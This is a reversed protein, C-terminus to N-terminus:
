RNSSDLIMWQVGGTTPTEDLMIAQIESEDLARNRIRVLDMRGANPSATGFYRGASLDSRSGLWANTRPNYRAGAVDTNEALLDGNLYIAAGENGSFTFAIHHWEGDLLGSPGNYLWHEGDQPTFRVRLDGAPDGLYVHLSNPLNVQNAWGVPGQSFLYQFSNGGPVSEFWLSLTFEEHNGSLDFDPLSIVSSTGNFDATPVSSNPRPDGSAVNYLTATRGDVEETGDGDLPWSAIVDLAPATPFPTFAPVSPMTMEFAEIVFAWDGTMPHRVSPDQEIHLFREPLIAPSVSQLCPDPSGNTFRGQKNTTGSLPYSAGPEQHSVAYRSDSAATLIDNMANTLQRSLSISANRQATTGNSIIVDSDHTTAAMGHINLAVSTSSHHFFEEHAVQFFSDVVHAMDSIRNPQGQLTGDCPTDDPSNRRHTGAQTFGLARTQAYLDIAQIRTGDFLPHPSEITVDMEPNLTFVYVGHWGPDANDEILVLHRTDLTNDRVYKLRYGVKDAEEAALLWDGALAAQFTARWDQLEQATPPRYVDSSFEGPVEVAELVSQISAVQVQFTPTPTQALLAAHPAVLLLSAAAASGCAIKMRKAINPM